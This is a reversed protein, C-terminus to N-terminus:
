LTWKCYLSEVSINWSLFEYSFDLCFKIGILIAGLARPEQNFGHINTPGHKEERWHVYIGHQGEIKRPKTLTFFTAQLNPIILSFFSCAFMSFLFKTQEMVKTNISESELEERRKKEKKAEEREKEKRSKKEKRIREWPKEKSKQPSTHFISSLFTTFRIYPSLFTNYDRM